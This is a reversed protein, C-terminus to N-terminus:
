PTSARPGSRVWRLLRGLAERIEAFTAETIAPRAIILIDAGTPTARVADRLLERLRRRVRNREVAGGLHRGTAIGFRDYGLQNPAYRVTMLRDSRARGASQIRAFDRRSRLM